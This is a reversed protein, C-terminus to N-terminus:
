LFAVTNDRRRRGVTQTQCVRTWSEVTELYEENIGAIIKQIDPIRQKGLAKLVKKLEWDSTGSSIDNPWQLYEDALMAVVDIDVHKRVIDLFTPAQSLSCDPGADTLNVLLLFCFVSTFCLAMTHM